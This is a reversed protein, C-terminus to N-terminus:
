ATLAQLETNSLRKPYYRLSRIHGNLYWGGSPYIQGILLRDVYPPTATTDPTAAAGDTSVAVDNAKYAFANKVLQHSTTITKISLSAQVAGGSDMYAFCTPSAAARFLKVDSNSANNGDTASYIGENTGTPTNVHPISFAVVFTGEDQRYWSSFNSGTMTPVDAARTTAASTSTDAARTVQATTTPIYSSPFSGPELQAGWIYLGSTGDGLYGTVLSTTQLYAVGRLYTGSSSSVVGSVSCRYWGNGVNTMQTTVGSATGGVNSHVVTGSSLDFEALIKDVFAVDKDAMLRLLSRGSAKAYISFTYATNALVSFAPAISIAHEGNLTNEVLKDATTAGDPSVAANASVSLYGKSWAGNDFQESYTLLNTGAAELLLAPSVSLNLPNYSYRAVGSAATQILGNSGIFTATSARGTHTVTSPIYTTPFSGAELQAGWIYIGSTGDGTYTSSTSRAGVSPFGVATATATGAIYVRWWGNQYPTAGYSVPSGALVACEGTALNVSIETLAFAGNNTNLAVSASTREAAKVFASFTYTTGATVSLPVSANHTNSSTDEVLKDAVCVGDPVLVTTEILACKWTSMGIHPFDSWTCMNTRQEEILSGKCEGSVPDFDIRPVNAAVTEIQGKGNVRTATSARTFTIRPDLGRTNVFDLLLSPRVIPYGTSNSAKTALETNLNIFNADVEANTLPSNKATAGVERTVITAM